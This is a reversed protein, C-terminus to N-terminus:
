DKQTSTGNFLWDSLCALLWRAKSFLYKWVLRYSTVVNLVISRCHILTTHFNTNSSNSLIHFFWIGRTRTESLIPENRTWQKGQFNSNQNPELEKWAPTQTRLDFVSVPLPRIIWRNVPSPLLPKLRFRHAIIPFSRLSTNSRNIPHHSVIPSRIATLATKMNNQRCWWYRGFFVLMPKNLARDSPLLYVSRYAIQYWQITKMKAGDYLRPM